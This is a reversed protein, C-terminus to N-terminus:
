QCGPALPAPSITTLLTADPYSYAGAIATSPNQFEFWPLLAVNQPHYTRGHMHIPYTSNTLGEVADAVEL